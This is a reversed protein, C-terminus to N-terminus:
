PRKPPGPPDQPGRWMREWQALMKNIGDRISQMLFHLAGHEASNQARGYEVLDKVIGLHMQQDTDLTDIRAMVKMELDLLDQKTAPESM